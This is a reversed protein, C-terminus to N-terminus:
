VFLSSQDWMNPLDKRSFNFKKVQNLYQHFFNKKKLKFLQNIANKESKDILEWGPM